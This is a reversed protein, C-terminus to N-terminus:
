QWTIKLNMPQGNTPPPPTNKVFVFLEYCTSNTAPFTVTNTGCWKTLDSQRTVCAVSVYPAPFGSIDTLTGNTANAPPTIWFTGINNTMKAYGTNAGPCGSGTVSRVTFPIMQTIPDAWAVGAAFGTLALAAIIHRINRKIKKIM